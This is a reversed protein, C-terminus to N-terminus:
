RKIKSAKMREAKIKDQILKQCKAPNKTAKCGALSKQLDALKAQSAKTKANKLINAAQGAPKGQTAKSANAMYKRYLKNAGYIALGAAATAGAGVIADPHEGISKQLQAMAQSGTEKGQAILNQLKDIIGHSEAPKLLHAPDHPANPDFHTDGASVAKKTAASTFSKAGQYSQSNPLTYPNSNPKYDLATGSDDNGHLANDIGIKARDKLDQARDAFGHGTYSDSSGDRTDEYYGGEGGHDKMPDYAKAAVALEHIFGETIFSTKGYKKAIKNGISEFLYHQAKTSYNTPLKGVMTLYCIEYSSAENMIFNTAKRNGTYNSLL